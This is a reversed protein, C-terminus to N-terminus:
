FIHSHKDAYAMKPLSKPYVKCATLKRKLNCKLLIRKQKGKKKKLRNKKRDLYSKV